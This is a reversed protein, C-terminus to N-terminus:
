FVLVCIDNAQYALYLKDDNIGVVDIYSVYGIRGNIVLHSEIIEGYSNLIHLNVEEGRAGNTKSEQIFIYRDSGWGLIAQSPWSGFDGKLIRDNETVFVPAMPFASYDTMINREMSFKKSKLRVLLRWIICCISM